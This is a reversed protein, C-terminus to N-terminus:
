DPCIVKQRRNHVCLWQDIKSRNATRTQEVKQMMTILPHARTGSDWDGGRGGCTLAFYNTGKLYRLTRKVGTWNGRSPNKAFQAMAVSIPNRPMNQMWCNVPTLRM